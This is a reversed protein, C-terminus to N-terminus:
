AGAGLSPAANLMTERELQRRNLRCAEYTPRGGREEFAADEAEFAAAEDDRWLHLGIIRPIRRPEPAQLASVLRSHQPHEGGLLVGPGAKASAESTEPM